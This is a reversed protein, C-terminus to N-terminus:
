LGRRMNKPYSPVQPSKCVPRNAIFPIMSTEEGPGPCKKQIEIAYRLYASASIADTNEEWKETTNDSEAYFSGALIAKKQAVKQHRNMIARTFAATQFVNEPMKNTRWFDWIDLNGENDLSELSINRNKGFEWEETNAGNDRLAYKYSFATEMEPIEV